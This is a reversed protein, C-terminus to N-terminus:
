GRQYVSFDLDYVNKADAAYPQNSIKHWDNEIDYLPFYTDGNIDAQIHTVYLKNAKPLCYQYITGGGIVMVEDAEPVLALAEEVSNVVDIGEACYDHHRSIIINRRGPLPFGISEFTKRGMIVPKGLTVKKFYALDAPLHWPMVNNKGIVNNNATAVILSLTTM